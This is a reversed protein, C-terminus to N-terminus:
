TQIYTSISTKSQAHAVSNLTAQLNYGVEALSESVFHVNQVFSMSSVLGSKANKQNSTGMKHNIRVLKNSFPSDEFVCNTELTM